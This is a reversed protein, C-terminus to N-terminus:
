EETIMRKMLNEIHKKKEQTVVVLVSGENPQGYVVASGLPAYLIAPLTALDEEGDVVIKIREDGSLSEQIVDILNQTLTAPPNKVEITKYNDQELSRRVHDPAPMRKTKNDVIALDPVISAELLYFATMDGVAVVKKAARLESDMAFVCELGSGKCLTGLPAKLEARLSEPLLQLKM